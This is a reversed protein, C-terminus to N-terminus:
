IQKIDEKIEYLILASFKDGTRGYGVDVPEIDPNSELWRNIKKALDETSDISYFSKVRRM